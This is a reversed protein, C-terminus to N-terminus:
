STGCFRVHLSPFAVTPIGISLLVRMKVGIKIDDWLYVPNLFLNILIPFPVHIAFAVADPATLWRTAFSDLSDTLLV